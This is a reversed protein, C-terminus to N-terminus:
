WEKVISPIIKRGKKEYTFLKHTHMTAFPDTVLEQEYVRSEYLCEKKTELQNDYLMDNPIYTTNLFYRRNAASLGLSIGSKHYSCLNSYGKSRILEKDEVIKYKGNVDPVYKWAGTTMDSSHLTEKFVIKVLQHFSPQEIGKPAILRERIRNFYHPTYEELRVEGDDDSSFRYIGAGINSADNSRSVHYVQYAFLSAIRKKIMSKSEAEVVLVWKGMGIVSLDIDSTYFSPFVKTRVLKKWYKNMWLQGLARIAPNLKEAQRVKEEPTMTPLIM